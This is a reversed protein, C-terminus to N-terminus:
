TKENKMNLIVDKRSKWDVMQLGGQKFSESLKKNIIDVIRRMDSHTQSLNIENEYNKKLTDTELKIDNIYELYG